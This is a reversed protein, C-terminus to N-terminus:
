ASVTVRLNRSNLHSQSVNSPSIAMPVTIPTKIPMAMPKLYWQCVILVQSKEGFDIRKFQGVIEQMM